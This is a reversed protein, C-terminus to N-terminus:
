YMGEDVNRSWEDLVSQDLGHQLLKSQYGRHLDLFVKQM